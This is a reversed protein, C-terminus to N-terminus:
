FVENLRNKIATLQVNITRADEKNGKVSGSAVNWRDADIKFGTAIEARKGNLTIRASIYGENKDSRVDRRLWFNFSFSHTM